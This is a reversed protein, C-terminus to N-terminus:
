RVLRRQLEALLADHHIRTLDVPQALAAAAGDYAAQWIKAKWGWCREPRGGGVDDAIALCRPDSM